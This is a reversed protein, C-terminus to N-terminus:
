GLRKVKRNGSWWLGLGAVLAALVGGSTDAAVDFVDATRGPVFSQHFEDSIGYFLCFLTVVLAALWPHRKPWGWPLAWYASFGLVSYVLCHLVKDIHSIAPLSFSDGPQHSLFFLGGMALVVPLFRQWGSRPDM